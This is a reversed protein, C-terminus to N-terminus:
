VTIVAKERDVGGSSEAAAKKKRGKTNPLKNDKKWRMRRNQFWVKVQRESLCLAHAVEVRRRRTLYRSFHFEKELELVQQRTYATRLRKPEPGVHNPNVHAVHVKKMWPYVVIPPKDKVQCGTKRQVQVPKACTMWAQCQLYDDKAAREQETFGPFHGSPHQEKGHDERLPGQVSHVYAAQQPTYPPPPPHVSSQYGGGYSGSDPPNNFYGGQDSFNSYDEECPPFQPEAYKCSVVYSEM